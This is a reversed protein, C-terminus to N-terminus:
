RPDPPIYEYATFTGAANGVYVMQPPMAAGDQVFIVFGNHGKQFNGTGWDLDQPTFVYRTDLLVTPDNVTQDTRRYAYDSGKEDQYLVTDPLRKSALYDRIAKRLNEAWVNALLDPHSYHNLRAHANDVSVIPFQGWYIVPTGQERTVLVDAATFHPMHLLVFDVRSQIVRGRAEISQDGMPERISLVATTGIRVIAAEQGAPTEGPAAQPAEVPAPSGLPPAPTETPPLVEQALAQPQIVFPAPALALIAAIAFLRSDSM